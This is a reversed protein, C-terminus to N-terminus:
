KIELVNNEIYIPNNQCIIILFLKEPAGCFFLLMLIFSPIATGLLMYLIANMEGKNSDIFLVFGLIPAAILILIFM